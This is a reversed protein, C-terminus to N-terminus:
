ENVGGKMNSLHFEANSASDRLANLLYANASILGGLQRISRNDLAQNSFNQEKEDAFFGLHEMMKGIAFLGHEISECLHESETRIAELSEKTTDDSDVKEFLTCQIANYKLM